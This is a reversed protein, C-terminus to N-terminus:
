VWPTTGTVRTLHNRLVGDFTRALGHCAVRWGIVTALRLRTSGGLRDPDFDQHAIANRWANLTLLLDHRTGAVPHAARVENWFKIGLRNFDAGLNGPNPNGHSLKLDRLFEALVIPGPVPSLHGALHYASERYLDRCYGQFQPSLLVAYAHNVQQTAYRRGRRPGGIARHAAAIEDLAARRNTRWDAYANSSM